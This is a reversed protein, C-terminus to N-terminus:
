HFPPDPDVMPTLLKPKHLLQTLFLLFTPKFWEENYIFGKGEGDGWKKRNARKRSMIWFFVIRLHFFYQPPLHRRRLNHKYRWRYM